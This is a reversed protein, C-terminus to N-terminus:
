KLVYRGQRLQCFSVPCPCIVLLSMFEFATFSLALLYFLETLLTDLYIM